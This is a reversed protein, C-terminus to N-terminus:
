GNVLNQKVLRHVADWPVRRSKGLKVYALEQQDMLKYISARSLKLHEAVEPVTAMGSGGAGPGGNSERMNPM